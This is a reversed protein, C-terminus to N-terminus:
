KMGPLSVILGFSADDNVLDSKELEMHYSVMMENLRSEDINGDLFVALKEWFLVLPQDVHSWVGSAVRSTAVQDSSYVGDTCAFLLDGFIDDKGFRLVTPDTMELDNRSSFYKYLVERGNEPMTHPNLLNTIGWPLIRNGLGEFANGRIHWIAGNGVYGILFESPTEVCVILTAGFQTLDISDDQEKSIDIDRLLATHVTQFVDKLSLAPLASREELIEKAKNAIFEATRKAYACSGVGDSLILGRSGNHHNVFDVLHDENKRPLCGFAIM